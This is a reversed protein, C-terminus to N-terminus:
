RVVSCAMFAAVSFAGEGNGGEDGRTATRPRRCQEVAQADHGVQGRQEGNVGAALGVLVESNVQSVKVPALRVMASQSCSCPPRRTFRATATFAKLARIHPAMATDIAQNRHIGGVPWKLKM